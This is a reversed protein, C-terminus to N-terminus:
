NHNADREAKLVRIIEDKAKLRRMYWQLNATWVKVKPTIYGILFGIILFIVAIM